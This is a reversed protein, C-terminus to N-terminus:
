YGQKQRQKVKQAKERIISSILCPKTQSYRIYYIRMWKSGWFTWSLNRYTETSWHTHALLQILLTMFVNKKSRTYCFSQQWCLLRPRTWWEGVSTVGVVGHAMVCILSTIETCLKMACISLKSIRYSNWSLKMPSSVDREDWSIRWNERTVM